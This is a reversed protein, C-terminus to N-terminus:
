PPGEGVRGSREFSSGGTWGAAESLLHPVQKAQHCDSRKSDAKGFASLFVASLGFASRRKYQLCTSQDDPFIVAVLVFMKEM